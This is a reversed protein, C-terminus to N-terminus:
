RQVLFISPPPLVKVAAASESFTHKPTTSNIDWICCLNDNGGSALQTGDPSWKLGCIEQQHGSLTAIHHQAVRVDHHFINSDRSGSSLVHSNWALAGVRALHGKMTRVCKKREVEWLQVDNNSLGIALHSGDSMWNVCTINESEEKTEMLLEIEGSAADWLYVCSGLGVALMNASSWDLLNLYYDDLM